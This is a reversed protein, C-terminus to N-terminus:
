SEWQSRWVENESDRFAWRIRRKREYRKDRKVIKPKDFRGDHDYVYLPIERFRFPVNMSSVLTDADRVSRWRSSVRLFWLRPLSRQRQGETPKGVSPAAFLFFVGGDGDSDTAQKYPKVLKLSSGVISVSVAIGGSEQSSQSREQFATRGFSTRIRQRRM